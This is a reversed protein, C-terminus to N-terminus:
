LLSGVLIIYTIISAGINFAEMRFGGPGLGTFGLVRLCEVM